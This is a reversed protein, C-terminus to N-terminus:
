DNCYKCHKSAGGQKQLTYQLQGETVHSYVGM